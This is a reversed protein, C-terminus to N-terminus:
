AASRDVRFWADLLRLQEAPTEVRVLRDRLAKGGPRGQLYWGFHKRAVRTGPIDGYFRHLGRVHRVM